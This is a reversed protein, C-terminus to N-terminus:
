VCFFALHNAQALKEQFVQTFCNRLWQSAPDKNLRASWAIVHPMPPIDIAVHRVDLKFQVIADALVIAPLTALMNTQSLVPAVAGFTPVMMGTRRETQAQETAQIVPNKVIDGTDVVIHPWARWQALDWRALGPHGARMFCAWNLFGAPAHAVGEPRSMVEPLLALDLLGEAVDLLTSKKPIQWEIQVFPAEEHLRNLLHPFLNMAFDPVALRFCRTSTAAEFSQRPSLVREMSRLIPRVEQVLEVAYPSPQMRGNVKILLPDGLQERLRALAHSVASQTRGLQQAAKSVSGEKMLVDFLLLLNLDVKNLNIKHM